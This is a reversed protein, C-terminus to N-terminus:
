RDVGFTHSMLYTAIQHGTVSAAVNNGDCIGASPDTFEGLNLHVGGMGGIDHLQESLKSTVDGKFAGQECRGDTVIAGQAVFLIDSGLEARAHGQHTYEMAVRFPGVDFKGGPNGTESAQDQYSDVGFGAQTLLHTTQQEAANLVGHAQNKAADVMGNANHEVEAKSCATLVLSGALGTAAVRSAFQIYKNPNWAM